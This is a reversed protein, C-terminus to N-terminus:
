GISEKEGVGTRVRENRHRWDAYGAAAWIVCGCDRKADAQYKVIEGASRAGFHGEKADIRHRRSM